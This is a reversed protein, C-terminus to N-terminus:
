TRQRCGSCRALVIAYYTSRGPKAILTWRAGAGEASKVFVARLDADFAATPQPATVYLGISAAFFALGGWRMGGRWLSVWLLAVVCLVFAADPPRPLARVAEPRVGFTQGIAAILDLSSSMLQLAPDALGFPALVAAIGAAPAVLFSMIPAAILNAPLAYTSFRQFHYIAFPDTAIGAVLSILIVGGISRAGTVIYTVVVVVLGSLFLGGPLWPPPDAPLSLWLAAGAIVSM